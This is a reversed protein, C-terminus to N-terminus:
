GVYTPAHERFSLLGNLFSLPGTFVFRYPPVMWTAPDMGSDHGIQYQLVRNVLVTAIVSLNVLIAVNKISYLRHLVRAPYLRKTKVPSPSRSSPALEVPRDTLQSLPAPEQLNITSLKIRLQVNEEAMTAMDSRYVDITEVLATIDEASIETQLNQSTAAPPCENPLKSETQTFSTSTDKPAPINASSLSARHFEAALSTSKALPFGSDSSQQTRLSADKGDFSFSKFLMSDVTEGAIPMKPEEEENQSHLEQAHQLEAKVSELQHGLDDGKMAALTLEEELRKNEKSLADARALAADLYGMIQDNRNKTSQTIDQNRKTEELARDREEKCVEVELGRDSALRRARACETRLEDRSEHMDKLKTEYDSILELHAANAMQLMRVRERLIKMEAEKEQLEIRISDENGLRSQLKTDLMKRELPLDRKDNVLNPMSQGAIVRFANMSPPPELAEKSASTTAGSTSYSTAPLNPGSQAVGPSENITGNSNITSQSSHRNLKRASLRASNLQSINKKIDHYGKSEGSTLIYSPIAKTVPESALKVPIPPVKNLTVENAKFLSMLAERDLVATIAGDNQAVTVFDNLLQPPLFWKGYKTGHSQIHDFFQQMSISETDRLVWATFQSETWTAPDDQEFNFSHSSNLSDISPNVFLMHPPAQPTPAVLPEASAQRNFQHADNPKLTQPEKIQV